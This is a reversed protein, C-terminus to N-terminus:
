QKEMIKQFLEEWNEVRQVHPLFIKYKAVEDERPRFLYKNRVEPLYSLIELRDDIMDTISLSKCLEKKGIRTDCFHIHSSDIGTSESFTTYDLWDRTVDEIHQPSAHSLLYIEGRFISNLRHLTTFAGKMAPIARYKKEETCFLEQYLSLTISVEDTDIIVGSIDVGIKRDMEGVKFTNQVDWVYFKYDRM